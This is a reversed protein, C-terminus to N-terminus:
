WLSHAQSGKGEREERVDAIWSKQLYLTSMENTFRTEEKRVGDYFHILHPLSFLINM